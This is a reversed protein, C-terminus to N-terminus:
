PRSLRVPITLEYENIRKALKQLEELKKGYEELLDTLDDLEPVEAEVRLTLTKTSIVSM